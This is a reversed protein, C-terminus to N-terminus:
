VVSLENAPHTFFLRSRLIIQVTLQVVLRGLFQYSVHLNCQLSDRLVPQLTAAVILLDLNLGEVFLLGQFSLISISVVRRYFSQYLGRCFLFFSLTNGCCGLSSCQWFLSEMADFVKFLLNEAILLM